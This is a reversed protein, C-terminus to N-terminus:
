RDPVFVTGLAAPATSGGTRARSILVLVIAVRGSARIREVLALAEGHRAPGFRGTDDATCGSLLCQWTVDHPEDYTHFLVMPSRAFTTAVSTWFALSHDADAM